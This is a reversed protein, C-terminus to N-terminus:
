STYEIVNIDKVENLKGKKMGVINKIGRSKALEVLRKTIIGDFLISEVDTKEKLTKILERVLVEKILKGKKDYLRAKLNNKLLNM